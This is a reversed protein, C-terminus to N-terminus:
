EALQEHGVTITVITLWETGVQSTAASVAFGRVAGYATQHGFLKNSLAELQRTITKLQEDSPEGTVAHALTVDVTGTHDDSADGIAVGVQTPSGALIAEVAGRLEQVLDLPSQAALRAASRHRQQEIERVQQRQGETQMKGEVIAFDVRSEQRLRGRQFAAEYWSQGRVQYRWRVGQGFELTVGPHEINMSLVTGDGGSPFLTVLQRVLRTESAARTWPALAEERQRAPV